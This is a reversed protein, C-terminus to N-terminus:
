DMWDVAELRRTAEGWTPETPSEWHTSKVRGIRRTLKMATLHQGSDRFTTMAKPSEWGSLTRFGRVKAFVLGEASRLQGLVSRSALFFRILGLVGEVKIQTASLIM